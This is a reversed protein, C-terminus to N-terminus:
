PPRISFTSVYSTCPKSVVLLDYGLVCVCLFLNVFVIGEAGKVEPLSLVAGLQRGTKGEDKTPKKKSKDLHSGKEHLSSKEAHLVPQPSMTSSHHHAAGPKKLYSAPNAPKKVKENARCKLYILNNLSYLRIM